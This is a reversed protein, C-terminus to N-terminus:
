REMFTAARINRSRSYARSFRRRARKGLARFGPSGIRWAPMNWNELRKSASLMLSPKSRRPGLGPIKLMDLHGPPIAARLEEHLALKGSGLLEAIQHALTEGIGAIEKLSGERMLSGLDKELIDIARAANIYAKVKFPNEGKLELFLAIERLVAAVAKNHLGEENM